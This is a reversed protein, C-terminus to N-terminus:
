GIDGNRERPAALLGVIAEATRRGLDAGMPRASIVVAPPRTERLIPSARGESPLDLSDAVIAAVKEGAASHSHQSSFYWVASREDPAHHTFSVVFDADLRNARLARVRETPATDASRSLLPHAGLNQVATAFELAAEWCQASEEEPRCFADVYIRQGAIHTPLAALWPRERVAERGPKATARAMLDLEAVVKRGVIGDEAMRRNSQFDLVAALTDPGFNGDVKGADFGLSNLRRQVEAVDDGRMMPIRHYLMRDGLGFGADVLTRWTEPGVIGDPPLGRAVQFAEVAVVTGRGYFAVPDDGIEHGLAGLRGQIDRVPEGQDGIRYLRV